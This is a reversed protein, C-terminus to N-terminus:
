QISKRQAGVGGQLDDIVLVADALDAEGPRLQQVAEVRCQMRVQGVRQADGGGLDGNAGDYEAGGSARERGAAVELEHHGRV